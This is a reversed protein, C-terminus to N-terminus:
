QLWGILQLDDCLANCFQKVDILDNRLATINAVLANFEAASVCGYGALTATGAAAASTLAAMTKDATSYATQTYASPRAVPTNAYAGILQTNATGILITNAGGGGINVAGANGLQLTVDALIDLQGDVSSYIYLGTDRFQLKTTTGLTQIATWTQATALAALTDTGTPLTLTGSGAVAAANLISSGSTSGALILKGVAGGITGFQKAGTVTQVGALVMDAPITVDTSDTGANDTATVGAGTFNLYTRATLGAGAEDKITHGGGGAPAAWEPATAGANMTLVQGATGKTLVSFADAGTGTILSGQTITLGALATLTADLPQSGAHPNSAALHTDIQAHTNTGIDSLSTHSRTTIQTINDLTLDNPINANTLLAVVSTSFDTVDAAVHTHAAVPVTQYTGDSALFQPSGGGGSVGGEAAIGGGNVFQELAAIDVQAADICQKVAVFAQRCDPDPVQVRADCSM